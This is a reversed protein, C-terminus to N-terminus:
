LMKKTEVMNDAFKVPDIKIKYFGHDNLYEMYKQLVQNDKSSIKKKGMKEQEILIVKGNEVKSNLAGM